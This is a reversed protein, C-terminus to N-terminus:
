TTGVLHKLNNALHDFRSTGIKKECGWLSIVIRKRRVHPFPIRVGFHLKFLTLLDYRKFHM